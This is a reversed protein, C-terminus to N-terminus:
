LRAAYPIYGGIQSIFAIYFVLGSIVSVILFFAQNKSNTQSMILLPWIFILAQLPYIAMRTIEVYLGAMTVTLYILTGLIVMALLKDYDPWVAALVFSRVAALGVSSLVFFATLLTAGTENREAYTEYRENLLGAFRFVDEPFFTILTCAIIMSGVTLPSVGRRFVFYLPIMVLASVHFTGALLCLLAYHWFKGRLLQPVALIFVAAALGQRLGNMHFLFFGLAILLFLSLAPNASYRIISHFYCAVVIASVVVLFGTVEFQLALAVAYVAKVGIEASGRVDWIQLQSQLFEYRSVYVQTDAGVENARIGAFIVLMVLTLLWIAASPRAAVRPSQAAFALATMGILLALYPLM